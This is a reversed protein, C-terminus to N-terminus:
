PLDYNFHSMKITYLKKIDFLGDSTDPCVIKVVVFFIVAGNDQVNFAYSTKSYRLKRKEYTTLLSKVWLILIKFRLNQQYIIVQNSAVYEAGGYYSTNKHGIGSGSNDAWLNECHSYM